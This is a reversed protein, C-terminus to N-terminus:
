TILTFRGKANMKKTAVVPEVVVSVAVAAVASAVVLVSVEALVSAAAVAAVFVAALVRLVGFPIELCRAVGLVRHLRPHVQGGILVARRIGM